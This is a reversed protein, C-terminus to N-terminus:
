RHALYGLGVSLALMIVGVVAIVVYRVWYKKDGEYEHVKKKVDDLLISGTNEVDEETAEIRREVEHMRVDLRIVTAQLSLVDNIREAIRELLQILRTENQPTM